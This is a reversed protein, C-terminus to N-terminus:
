HLGVFALRSGETKPKQEHTSLGPATTISQPHKTLALDNLRKMSSRPITILKAANQIPPHPYPQFFAEPIANTLGAYCRRNRDFLM